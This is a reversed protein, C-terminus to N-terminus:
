KLDHVGSKRETVDGVNVQEQSIKGFKSKHHTGKTMINAV